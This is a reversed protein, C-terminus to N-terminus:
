QGTITTLQAVIEDLRAQQADLEDPDPVYDADLMAMQVMHLGDLLMAKLEEKLGTMVTIANEPPKITVPIVTSGAKSMLIVEAAM